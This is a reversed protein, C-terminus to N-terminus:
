AKYVKDYVENWRLDYELHITLSDIKGNKHDEMLETVMNALEKYFIYDKNYTEGYKCKLKKCSAGSCCGDEGCADCEECYPNILDSEM